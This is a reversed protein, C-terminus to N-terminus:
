LGTRRATARQRGMWIHSLSTGAPPDGHASASLRDLCSESVARLPCLAWLAWCVLLAARLGGKGTTESTHVKGSSSSSRSIDGQSAFSLGLHRAPRPHQAGSPECGRREPRGADSQRRRGEPHEDHVQHLGATQVISLNAGFASVALAFTNLSTTLKGLVADLGSDTDAM